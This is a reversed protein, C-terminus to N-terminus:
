KKNAIKGGEKKQKFRMRYAKTRKRAMRIPKKEKITLKSWYHYYPLCELCCFDFKRKKKSSRIVNLVMVMKYGAEHVGCFKNCCKKFRRHSECYITTTGSSQGCGKVPCFDPLSHMTNWFREYRFYSLIIQLEEKEEESLGTM